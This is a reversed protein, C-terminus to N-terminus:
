FLMKVVPCPCGTIVIEADTVSTGSSVIGRESIFVASMRM